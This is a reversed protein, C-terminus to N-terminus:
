KLVTLISKSITKTLTKIPSQECSKNYLVTKRSCNNHKNLNCKFMKNNM